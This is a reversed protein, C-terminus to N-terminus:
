SYKVKVSYWMLVESRLQQLSIDDNKIVVDYESEKGLDNESVHQDNNTLENRKILILNAGAKKLAQRENKLRVDSVVVNSSIEKIKAFLLVIFIDDRVFTRLMDTGITQMLERSTRLERDFFRDEILQKNSRDVIEGKETVDKNIVFGWENEVINFIEDLHSYDITIMDIESEKLKEDYLYKKEIHFVRAILEKLPDALAISVFRESEVFFNAVTSKGSGKRGAIGIIKM